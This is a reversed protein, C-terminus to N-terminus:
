KAQNESPAHPSAPSSSHVTAIASCLNRFIFYHFPVLSYWYLRGLVGKPRFTAAQTVTGDEIHYELWAEGPIKMETYLLLVGKEKDAFLVRWFDLVDGNRLRTPHTRGRRLGIGGVMRDIHGRLKWAWDMYYWGNDGGIAWLKDISAERNKYPLTIIEKLCGHIPTAIYSQLDPNLDSKVLADKWSSVIVQQEILEFTRNLAEEYTLCDHPIIERISNDLCIADHKLSKVLAKALPYSIATVFFLWYSSLRPTLLPIPIILRHLNRIKAFRQLMELYSIQEPGGIDFSKNKCAENDLVSHLYFIVDSIAIPQCLSRVWTPAVMIPLKEVLDRIIEFSASGSGIIIGAELITTPISSKELIEGVLKRSQMHESLQKGHALGSLYIIQKANTQEIAQCFHRASEAEKAAFGNSHEGMSHVLYYAADIDKPIADLSKPELLDAEIIQDGIPISLRARSRTLAVIEHGAEILVPMLRSGIYGGAGTLLIKM